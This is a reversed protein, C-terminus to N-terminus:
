GIKRTVAAFGAQRCGPEDFGPTSLVALKM